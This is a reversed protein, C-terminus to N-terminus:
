SRSRGGSRPRRSASRRGSGSRCGRSRGKSMVIPAPTAREAYSIGSADYMGIRSTSSKVRQVTSQRRQLDAGRAAPVAHPAPRLKQVRVERVAIRSDIGPTSSAPGRWSRPACSRSRRDPRSERDAVLVDEEGELQRQGLDGAAAVDLGHGIAAFPSASPACCAFEAAEDDIGAKPKMPSNQGAPRGRFRPWARRDISQVRRISRLHEARIASGTSSAPAQPPSPVDCPFTEATRLRDRGPAAAASSGSRTRGCSRGIQRADGGDTASLQRGVLLRQPEVVDGVRVADGAQVGRAVEVGGLLGARRQGRVARPQRRDRAAVRRGAVGGADGLKM